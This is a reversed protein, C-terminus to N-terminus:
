EMEARLNMAGATSIPTPAIPTPAKVPASAATSAAPLKESLCAGCRRYGPGASDMKCEM